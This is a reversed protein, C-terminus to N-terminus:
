LLPPDVVVNVRFNEPLTSFCNPRHLGVIGQVVRVSLTSTDPYRYSSFSVESLSSIKTVAYRITRDGTGYPM